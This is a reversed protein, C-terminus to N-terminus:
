PFHAAPNEAKIRCFSNRNLGPPGRTARLELQARHRAGIYRPPFACKGGPSSPGTRPHPFGYQRSPAHTLEHQIGGGLAIGLSCPPYFRELATKRLFGLSCASVSIGFGSFFNTLSCAIPEPPESPESVSKKEPSDVM